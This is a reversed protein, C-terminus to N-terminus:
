EKQLAKVDAVIEEVNPRLGDYFKIVKGTQDVLYFQSPHNVLLSIEPSASKQQTIEGKFAEKAIAQIQVLSYGTLLHWNRPDVQHIAAFKTLVEPRDYAPDASFSIISITLGAAQLHQQVRVLNATLPPCINPCRTFIFNALWVEGKLDQLRMSRGTQDIAQLDPVQWNLDSVNNTLSQVTEETGSTCGSVLFVSIWIGIFWKYRSKQLPFGGAM